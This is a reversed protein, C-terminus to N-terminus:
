SKRAAEFRAVEETTLERRLRAATLIHVTRGTRLNIAAWGGGFPSPGLLRVGTLRESVKAVYAGGVKVDAKKM